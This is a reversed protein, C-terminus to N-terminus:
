RKYQQFNMLESIQAQACQDQISVFYSEPLMFAADRHITMQPTYIVKLESQAM